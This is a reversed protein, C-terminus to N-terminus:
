AREFDISKGRITVKKGPAGIELDVAANIRFRGLALEILSGRSDGMCIEEPKLRIFDGGSNELQISGANDDLQICQAGPTMFTYRCVKGNEVGADPPGNGSYLGGMVIGQDSDPNLLLVLVRDDMDPLAILGKGSGAGPVLVPLWGTEVSGYNPLVVRVRGLNDPDDIQSVIGLTFLATNSSSSRPRPPSTEIECIYGQNHDMIHKVTTLVYRGSLLQAVGSIEVPTGPRLRTNGEAVGWLVVERATRHDLEAQAIGDAQRHDQVGAEVITRRGSGGVQDPTLQFDVQRSVRARDARGTVSEVRHSNWGTTEVSRCISDTNVEIRAELLSSGLDLSIPMGIGELTILHLVNNRLTFYIGCKEAAEAMLEFDTQYCQFITQRLPGTEAAEVRLGLDAVLTQVLEDLNVQLHAGVPQRKRLKHLSDYGRIRVWKERSPGYEHNVATIEGSFLIESFGEVRVQLSSGPLGKADDFLESAPEQFTLECVTPLSLSQHVRIESLTRANETSIPMGGMEVSLKPITVISSM